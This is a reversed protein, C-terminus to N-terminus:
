CGKYEKRVCERALQEAKEIQSATMEKAVADRLEDGTEHGNSAAINGWMHAYIYDQLVGRGLGYMAGLNVQANAVGQGAALTYWKVATKYDQPVGNGLKRFVGVGCFVAIYANILLQTHLAQVYTSKV